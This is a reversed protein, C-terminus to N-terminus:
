ELAGWNDRGLRKMREAVAPPPDEEDFGAREDYQSNGVLPEDVGVLENLLPFREAMKERLEDVYEDHVACKGRYYDYLRLTKLGPPLGDVLRFPPMVAIGTSGYEVDEGERPQPPGLLAVIPVALVKLAAFDHLSGITYGYVRTDELDKSWLPKGNGNAADFKAYEDGLPDGRGRQGQGRGIRGAARFDEERADEEEPEGHFSLAGHIDMDLVRLTAKQEALCKGITKPLVVPKGGKSHSLGGASFTFEELAKPVRIIVGLLESGIDANTISIKRVTSTGPPSVEHNNQYAILANTSYTTLSPLRGFYRFHDLFEASDYVREDYPTYSEIHVTQLTQLSPSPLPSLSPYNNRLLFDRIFFPTYEIGYAQLYTLNKCFSLLLITAAAAFGKDSKHGHHEAGSSGTFKWDLSELIQHTTSDPLGITRTYEKIREHAAADNPSPPPIVADTTTFCKWPRDPWAGTDILLEEVHLAASPDQAYASLYPYIKEIDKRGAIRLTRRPPLAVMPQQLHSDGSPDMDMFNLNTERISMRNPVQALVRSSSSVFSLLFISRFAAVRRPIM